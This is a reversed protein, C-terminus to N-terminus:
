FFLEKDAYCVIIGKKGDNGAGGPASSYQTYDYPAMSMKLYIRNPSSKSPDTSSQFYDNSSGFGGRGAGGHGGDGGEGYNQDQIVVSPTGTAPGPAAQDFHGVEYAQYTTYGSQGTYDEHDIVSVSEGDAGDKYAQAGWGGAGGNAISQEIRNFKFQLGKGGLGGKYTVGDWVIDEGPEGNGSVTGRGGNGGRCGDRGKCAYVDSTFLNKIGNVSYYASSDDSSYVTGGPTTVTSAGPATRPLVRTQESACNGGSAGGSGVACTYRGPTPNRLVVERIKGGNGGFGGEGGKSGAQIDEYDDIGKLGSSGAEGGGIIVFRALTTGEQIEIYGNGTVFAWHTYNNGFTDPSYGAIFECASKNFSSIKSTTKTLYAQVTNDFMDVFEYIKGCKEGDMKVDASITESSTYYSLLRNAVNESNVGTVLTASDVSVTYEGGGSNFSKEVTAVKDYYPRGTLVGQGTVIAYNVGCDILELDGSAVITSAVIPAQDFIFLKNTVPTKDSNDVLTIPEITDVDQYSHESLMIKTAITPYKITGGIFIRDQPITTILENPRIFTFHMDGNTNKVISINEAFMVQHLNNRRTDFPLWGFIKTAGVDEDYTYPLATGIIEKMLESFTMGQYVGGPHYSKDLIGIPSVCELNYAKKTKRTINNIFFKHTLVGNVYYWIPTGFPLTRLGEYDTGEYYVTPAFTDISLSEEIMDITQISVPEDIHDKDFHFDTSFINFKVTEEITTGSLVMFRLILGTANSPITFTADERTSIIQTWSSVYYYARFYAVSTDVKVRYTGGPVMGAPFGNTNRFMDLYSTESTTEGSITITRDNNNTFTLGRFTHPIASPTWVNLEVFIEQNLAAM